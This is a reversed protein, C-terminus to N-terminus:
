PLNLLADRLKPYNPTGLGTVPDWGKSAYFAVEANCGWNYGGVVDNFLDSNKYLFPNLFGLPSKGASIREGNILNIMSAFIPASASTGSDVATSNQFVSAINWGVASIDPFGRSTSNYTTSKPLRTNNSLFSSVADDQYSPRSFVNSFGGGSTFGIDNVLVAVEPDHITGNPPIQTAGVSTVYPCATPFGPRQSGGALCGEDPFRSVTGNDGSAVIVSTGMLGLKMYEHCQRTAYAPTYADEAVIYSISIVNTPKHVGCQRTRNWSRGDPFHPDIKPDDGGDYTCYSADLADLFQNFIGTWGNSGGLDISYTQFIRIGQPYIIPYAMQLDLLTESGGRGALEPARGGDINKSEPHTGNPIHPSYQSLFWDLNFQDYSQLYEYLGLDNGTQTTNASPSSIQYLDKICQPTVNDSCSAEKISQPNKVALEMESGHALNAKARKELKPNRPGLSFGSATDLGITPTIFDIHHRIDSSVHYEDCSVSMRGTDVHEWVDYRTGLLAEAEDVTAHFQVNGRSPAVNHRHKEIGSLVLWQRVEEVVEKSPSFFDHVQEPTWHRGFNESTPDSIDMLYDHGQDINQSSIGVRIPLLMDRPAQSRKIWSAPTYSRREHLIHSGPSPSKTSSSVTCIANALIATSLAKIWHM